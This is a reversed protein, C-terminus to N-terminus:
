APAWIGFENGDPDTFEAWWGWPQHEAETTIRVGKARLDDVTAPLDDCHLVVRTSTGIQDEHGPPTYLVFHTEVGAPAVELWRPEASGPMMPEDRIVQFGLTKTYFDRAQAQDRVNIGITGAKTIM